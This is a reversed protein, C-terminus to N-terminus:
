ASAALSLKLLANVMKGSNANAFPFKSDSFLVAGFGAAFVPVVAGFGEVVVVGAGVVCGFGFM